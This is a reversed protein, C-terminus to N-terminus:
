RKAKKKKASEARAGVTGRFLLAVGGYAGCSHCVYFGDKVVCSPTRETHFPCCITGSWTFLPNTSFGNIQPIM